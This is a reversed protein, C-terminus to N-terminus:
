KVGLWIQPLTVAVGIGVGVGVLVIVGVGVGVGVMLGVRIVPRKKEPDLTSLESQFHTATYILFEDCDL